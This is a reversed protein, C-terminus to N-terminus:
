ETMNIVYLIDIQFFIRIQPTKVLTETQHIIGGGGGGVGFHLREKLCIKLTTKDMVNNGTLSSGSDTKDM